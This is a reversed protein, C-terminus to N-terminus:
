RELVLKGGSIEIREFRQLYAMGLLSTHMEGRNVWVPVNRDVLPGIALEDVTTRATDVVGNATGARGSYVLTEPDIGVMAADSRSLVIDTAGTDVVFLVPKGNIAATLYYHGDHARPVEIRRDEEFVAQRPIIDRRIDSWLGAGAIVGLFILGWLLAHRAMQGINRRQSILFYSGVVSGLLVLYILSGISNSDM